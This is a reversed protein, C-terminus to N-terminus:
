YLMRSQAAKLAVAVLGGGLNDPVCQVRTRQALHGGLIGLTM